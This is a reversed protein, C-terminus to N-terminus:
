NDIRRVDTFLHYFEEICEMDFKDFDKSFIILHTDQSNFKKLLKQIDDVEPINKLAPFYWIDTGDEICTTIKNQLVVKAYKSNNFTNFEEVIKKVDVQNRVDLSNLKVWKDFRRKNRYFVLNLKM